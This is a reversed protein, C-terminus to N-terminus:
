RAKYHASRDLARQQRLKGFQEVISGLVPSNCGGNLQGGSSRKAPPLEVSAAALEAENAEIRHELLERLHRLEDASELREKEGSQKLEELAAKLERERARALELETAVEARRGDLTRLEETRSLLAATLSAIKERAANLDATTEALARAQTKEIEAREAAFQERAAAFEARDSVLQQQWEDLHSQYAALADLSESLEADLPELDAQWREFTSRISACDLLTTDTTTPM